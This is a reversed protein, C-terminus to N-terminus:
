EGQDQKRLLLEPKGSNLEEGVELGLDDIFHYIKAKIEDVSFCEDDNKAEVEIFNGLGKVEELVIEYDTTEFTHKINDVVVLVELGLCDFIMEMARLDNIETEYEESYLWKDGQYKDLKYTVYSKNGKSRIRCCEMLKKKVNLKLNKRKPDVYYTDVTQKDGCYELGFLKEMATQIDDKLEALVEIERM